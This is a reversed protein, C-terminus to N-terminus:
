HVRGACERTNHSPIAHLMEAGRDGSSTELASDIASTPHAHVCQVTSGEESGHHQYPCETAADATM